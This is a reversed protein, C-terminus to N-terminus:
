KSKVMTIKRSIIFGIVAGVILTIHLLLFNYENYRGAFVRAIDALLFASCITVGVVFVKRAWKFTILTDNDEVRSKKSLVYGLLVSVITIVLTIAIKLILGEYYLFQLNDFIPNHEVTNFTNYNNLGLPYTWPLIYSNILEELIFITTGFVKMSKDILHGYMWSISMLLFSPTLWVLLGIVLGATINMVIYQIMFLFAYTSLAVIYAMIFVSISNIVSDAKVILESFISVAHIDSIWIMNASRIFLVGVILVITPITLSILGGVFKTIYYEKNNIPLAKLFNGVEVSKTDKFQLYIMLLIGLGMPIIIFSLSLRISEIIISRDPTIGRKLIDMYESSLSTNFALVGGMAILLFYLMMWKMNRTEHKVLAKNIKM